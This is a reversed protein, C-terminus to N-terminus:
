REVTLNYFPSHSIDKLQTAVLRERGPPGGAALLGHLADVSDNPMDNGADFSVPEAEVVLATIDRDGTSKKIRVRLSAMLPHRIEGATLAAQYAIIHNCNGSSRWLCCPKQM